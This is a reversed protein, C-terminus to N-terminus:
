FCCQFFLVKAMPTKKKQKCLFNLTITVKKSVNPHKTLTFKIIQHHFPAFNMNCVKQLIKSNILIDNKGFHVFWNVIQLSLIKSQFITLLFLLLPSSLNCFNHLSLTHNWSHKFIDLFDMIKLSKQSTKQIYKM